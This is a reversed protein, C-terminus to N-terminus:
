RPQGGQAVEEVSAGSRLQEGMEPLAALRDQLFRLASPDMVGDAEGFLVGYWSLEGRDIQEQLKRLEPPADASRAFETLERKAEESEVQAREHYTDAWRQLDTACTQLDEIGAQLRRKALEIDSIM